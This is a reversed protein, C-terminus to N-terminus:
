VGEYIQISKGRPLTIVAKKWDSRRGVIRGSRVKKGKNNIINVALPKIGYVQEIAKKVMIKNTKRNVMFVYKDEAGMNAAKESILPKILIKYADRGSFSKMSPAKEEKEEEKKTKPAADKKAAGSENYLDKMKVEKDAALRDDSPNQSSKKKEGKFDAVAQQEKKDEDDKTKKRGFLSM